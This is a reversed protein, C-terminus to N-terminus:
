SDKVIATFDSFDEIKFARIYSISNKFWNISSLKQIAMYVASLSDKPTSNIYIGGPSWKFGLISLEETIEDYAKHFDTRYEKKLTDIEFDFIIAYM